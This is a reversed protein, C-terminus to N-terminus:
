CYYLAKALNTITTTGNYSIVVIGNNLLAKLLALPLYGPFSELETLITPIASEHNFTGFEFLFSNLLKIDVFHQDTPNSNKITFLSIKTLLEYNFANCCSYTNFNCNLLAYPYEKLGNASANGLVNLCCPLVNAEPGSHPAFANMFTSFDVTNNSLMYNVCQQNCTPKCINDCNNDEIVFTENNILHLVDDIFNAISVSNLPDFEPNIYSPITKIYELFITIPNKCPVPCDSVPIIYNM